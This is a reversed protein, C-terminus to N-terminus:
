GENVRIVAIPKMEDIRQNFYAYINDRHEQIEKERERNIEHPFLEIDANPINLIDFFEPLHSWLKQVNM